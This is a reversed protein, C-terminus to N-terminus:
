RSLGDRDAEERVLHDIVLGGLFVIAAVYLYEV